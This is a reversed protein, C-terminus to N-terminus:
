FALLLFMALNAIFSLSTVLPKQEAEQKKLELIRPSLFEPDVNGKLSEQLAFAEKLRKMEKPARVLSGEEILRPDISRDLDVQAINKVISVVRGEAIVEIQANGMFLPNLSQSVLRIVQIPDGVEIQSEVGVDAKLSLASGARFVVENKLSDKTVFGQYPISALFDRALKETYPELQRQIPISTQLPLSKEWLPRGYEGDYVRMHLVKDELQTTMLAHADLVKALIIADSPSLEGRPQFVDKQTLFNKSAVLFRQDKTLWERLKWWIKDGEERYESPMQIPFVSVRRVLHHNVEAFSASPLCIFFLFYSFLKKM